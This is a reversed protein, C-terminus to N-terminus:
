VWDPLKLDFKPIRVCFLRGDDTEVFYAGEAEGSQSVYHRSNYSFDDGCALRPFQGVVGDGEVVIVDRNAQRLVWKRGRVTVPTDSHNAITIFYVFPHPRDAPSDLDPM